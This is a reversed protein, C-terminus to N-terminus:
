WYTLRTYSPMDQHYLPMGTCLLPTIKVIKVYKAPWYYNMYLKEFNQIYFFSGDCICTQYYKSSVFWFRVCVQGYKRAYEILENKSYEEKELIKYKEEYKERIMYLVNTTLIDKLEEIDNLDPLLEIGYNKAVDLLNM